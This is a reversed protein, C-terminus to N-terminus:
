SLNQVIQYLGPGITFGIMAVIMLIAMFWWFVKVVTKHKM